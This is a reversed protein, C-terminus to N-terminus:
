PAWTVGTLVAIADAYRTGLDHETIIRILTEDTQFASRWETGDHYSAQDSSAITVQMTDGIMVQAFDAFYIESENTGAGLNVPVSTTTTYPRNGIRGQAMEPFAKNGNGDRLSELFKEVRPAIIYGPTTMPINKDVLLLELKALDQTVTQLNVTANAAIKNGAPCLNLLGTPATASGAGRLFQQDETIAVSEQLDERVMMDVQMSARRLLDNSIPVMAALKKASLKTEGVTLGTTPINQREGIYSATSGGTKKRTTLNGNPMPVVRAGMRRVAVRPRLLGIFDSSIAEDVLFGGKTDTSQEMNAVISGTESGWLQEAVNAAARQDMNGRILAQTIRAFQVGPELAVKPAAPVTPAAAGTGAPMAPVPTAAAAKRRELDELQAIKAALKDDEAKLADLKASEDATLDRDEGGAADIIAQMDDLGKARAAKLKTIPDM